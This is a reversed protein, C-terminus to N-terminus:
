KKRFEERYKLVKDLEKQTYLSGVLSTWVKEAATKFEAQMDAPTETVKIGKQKMQKLSSENDKRVAKMLKKGITKTIKNVKKLDAADIKNISDMKIVTAGISYAMPMSTMYKVKSAWGLTMSALPPGYCANIKGSTLNAEVEPVGLSVDKTIGLQKYMAKVVDDDSWRWVKLAKLDAITEVKDKSLFYVWGVDGPDGLQYGKKKFKKQFSPWMKKRVYEMEEISEWMMPLELVKISADIMSLGVSTVAAGDLQGANIKRIYDREDGQGADAYYKVTVRNETAKAVKDGGESLVKEWRSGSPALTAMRLEVDALAPAATLALLAVASLTTSTLRTM